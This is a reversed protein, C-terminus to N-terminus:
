QSEESRGELELWEKTSLVGEIRSNYTVAESLARATAKAAAELIHHSNEGALQRVHLTIGAHSTFSRLFEEFLVADFCGIRAQPCCLGYALYPRGSIDLAAHVLAEDMPVWATGFRNIGKGDGVARTFAKGMVIGVDEITHHGDVELDGEAAVSLDFHGHKAVAKLLHDFFGIGTSIQSQGTGDLTLEVQVQTEATTRETRASRRSNM